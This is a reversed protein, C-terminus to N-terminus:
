IAKNKKNNKKQGALNSRESNDSESEICILIWLLEYCIKDIYNILM